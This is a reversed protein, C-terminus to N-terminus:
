IKRSFADATMAIISTKVSQRKEQLGSKEGGEFGNMVPM